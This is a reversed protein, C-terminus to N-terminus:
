TKFTPFRKRIEFSFDYINLCDRDAVEQKRTGGVWGGVENWAQIGPNIKLVSLYNLCSLKLQQVKKEGRLIEIVETTQKTHQV